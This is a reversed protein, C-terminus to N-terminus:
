LTRLRALVEEAVGYAEPCEQVEARSLDLAVQVELPLAGGEVAGEAEAADFAALAAAFAGQRTWTVGEKRALEARRAPMTRGRRPMTAASCGCIAWSRM